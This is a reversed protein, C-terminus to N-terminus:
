KNLVTCGKNYQLVQGGIDSEGIVIYEPNKTDQNFDKFENLGERELMIWCSKLNLERLYVATAYSATIVEDYFIHFGAKRLKETCSKCSELTSNTLFRLVTGKDRLSNITEIAGPYIKGQFKLVGDVDFIIGKINEKM